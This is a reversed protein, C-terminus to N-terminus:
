SNCTNLGLLVSELIMLVLVSLGGTKERIISHTKVLFPDLSNNFLFASAPCGQLVGSLFKLITYKVGGHNYVASAGTYIGQFLMIYHAPLKRHKLVLWIWCHIVSPFTAEYDFAGIIPFNSPKNPNACCSEFIM